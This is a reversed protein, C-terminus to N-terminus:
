EVGLNQVLPDSIHTKPTLRKIYIGNTQCGIALINQALTLCENIGQHWLMYLGNVLFTYKQQALDERFECRMM